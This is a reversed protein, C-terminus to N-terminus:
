VPQFSFALRDDQISTYGLVIGTDKVDSNKAQMSFLVKTKLETYQETLPQLGKAIQLQLPRNHIDVFVHVVKGERLQDTIQMLAQEVGEESDISSATVTSTPNPNSVYNSLMSNLQENSFEDHLLFVSSNEEKNLVVAIKHFLSRSKGSGSGGLITNFNVTTSTM